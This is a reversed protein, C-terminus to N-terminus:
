LLPSSSTTGCVGRSRSLGGQLVMSLVSPGFASLSKWFTYKATELRDRYQKLDPRNALADDLYVTVDELEEEKPM